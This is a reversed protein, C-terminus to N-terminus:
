NGEAASSHTRARSHVRDRTLAVCHGEVEVSHQPTLLLAPHLAECLVVTSVKAVVVSGSSGMLSLILIFLFLIFFKM